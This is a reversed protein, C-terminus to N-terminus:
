DITNIITQIPEKIEKAKQNIASVMDNMPKVMTVRKEEITKELDKAEKRIDVALVTDEYNKIELNNAKEQISSTQELIANFQSNEVTQPVDLLDTM